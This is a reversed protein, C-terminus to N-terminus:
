QLVNIRRRWWGRTQRCVPQTMVSKELTEEASVSGGAITGAVVEEAEREEDSTGEFLNKLEHM